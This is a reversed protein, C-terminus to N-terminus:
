CCDRWVYAFQNDSKVYAFRPITKLDYTVLVRKQEAAWSLVNPDSGGGLGSEQAIAYDLNPLRRALGRVIRQNFNEDFLLPPM